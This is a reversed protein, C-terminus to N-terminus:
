IQLAPPALAAQPAGSLPIRALLTGKQPEADPLREEALRAIAEALPQRSVHLRGCIETKDIRTGPKLALGIIAARLDDYVYVAKSVGRRPLGASSLAAYSM